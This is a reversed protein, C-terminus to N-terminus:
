YNLLEYFSYVDHDSDDLFRGLKLQPYVQMFESLSVVAMVSDHRQAQAFRLYVPLSHSSGVANLEYLM